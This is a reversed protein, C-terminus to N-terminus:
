NFPSLDDQSHRCASQLRKPMKNSCMSMSTGQPSLVRKKPSQEGIGTELDDSTARFLEISANM